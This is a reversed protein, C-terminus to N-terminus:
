QHTLLPSLDVAKIGLAPQRHVRRAHRQADLQWLTVQYPECLLPQGDHHCARARRGGAERRRQLEQIVHAPRAAPPLVWGVCVLVESRMILDNTCPHQHAAGDTRAGPVSGNACAARAGQWDPRVKETGTVAVASLQLRVM